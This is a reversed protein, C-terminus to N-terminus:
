FGEVISEIVLSIDYNLNALFTQNLSITGQNCSEHIATDSDFSWGNDNVLALLDIEIPTNQLTTFSGM